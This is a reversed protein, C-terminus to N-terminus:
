PQAPHLKLVQLHDWPFQAILSNLDQGRYVGRWPDANTPTPDEGYFTVISSKDRLVIGYRQAAEALMMTLPPLHLSDINLNPDLRLRSGEPLLNPVGSDGDGHTAPSSWIGARAHPTAFALAHDIRHRQLDALTIMGGLLPLGTATAGWWPQAGPWAKSSYYGPDQSVDHMAGAAEAHWGDPRHVMQSFEWMTDTSPQWVVLQHDSGAAPKANAPIPVPNVARQVTSWGSQDLFVEM